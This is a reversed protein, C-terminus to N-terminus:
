IVGRRRLGEVFCGILREFDDREEPPVGAEDAIASATMTEGRRARKLVAGWISDKWRKAEQQDLM